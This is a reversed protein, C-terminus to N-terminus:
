KVETIEAFLVGNPNITENITIKGNEVTMKVTEPTLVSCEKYKEKLQSFYIERAKADSLTTPKEIVPCDPSWSFCDNGIGYTERDVLWEDFYNCSDDIRYLKVTVEKGDLQPVNVSFETDVSKKYDVDNKFNYAMLLVSGNEPNIASVCDVESQILLGKKTNETKIENMGGFKAVNKAVHYTIAPNGDFLGNSLYEWSSLYDGGASFLQSYLRADYAAQYTYGVTRSLLQNDSAGSNNGCLIRGEDIGFILGELGANRASTKLYEICEYLTKGSTFEGPESDYFSASLFCIRTGTEGTKYNTGKACHEIFINEDWLGETVTMSHAGVFVDEGIAKQLADVTYDYLKCYAIATSEPTGDPAKFWDANEYETMVGFRWSLVEEKGFEEVLAECLAYIYDYYIDYDDPPYINTGFTTDTRALASYKLPVSGLKLHPKAGLAVIGRCSTILSSFDYDDLTDFDLPDKFLDRDAAGGTCQMLQVYEVFEFINNEENVKPNAFEPSGKANWININSVANPLTNGTESADIEFSYDNACPFICILPALFFALVSTFFSIVKEM